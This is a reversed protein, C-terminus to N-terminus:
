VQVAFPAAAPSRRKLETHRLCGTRRAPSVIRRTQRAPTTESRRRTEGCTGLGQWPQRRAQRWSRARPREAQRRRACGHSGVSAGLRGPDCRGHDEPDGETRGDRRARLLRHRCRGQGGTGDPRDPACLQGACQASDFNYVHKVDPIDLGRAAVDTAVLVTIEGSKFAAIARDRQGQSKNGHISGAAYGAKVLTKMLKESGHKTRGFVLARESRHKDLMEILLGAKEAKAIFHVEQTVKDAAKGPPSVEVRIPSRLYSQALENMQKPMTASFLMTQREKPIVSAIKRLDHIFGMDLMQDAEDLVLFVAEDLRVARRDMLDLLRGPTAVLLDVGRELRKIQTNISQGGVVMAVKIPTGEAFARLNVSIQTALERTPALVLGRVSRPAPRGELELMQAVIPVGFAATKGTGTQALGMVDRGNLAHPIAQKQIPTPDKFGMAELRATLKAPLGMMDFDSM